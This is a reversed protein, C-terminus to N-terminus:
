DNLMQRIVELPILEGSLKENKAILDEAKVDKIEGKETYFQDLSTQTTEKRASDMLEKLQPLSQTLLANAEATMKAAKTIAINLEKLNNFM